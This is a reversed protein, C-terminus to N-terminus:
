VPVCVFREKGGSGAGDMCWSGARAQAVGEEGGEGGVGDCEDNMDHRRYRNARGEHAPPPQLCGGSPPRRSGWARQRSTALWPPSRSTRGATTRSVRSRVARAAGTGARARRSTTTAPSLSTRYAFPAEMAPLSNSACQFLEDDPNVGGPLSDSRVAQLAAEM